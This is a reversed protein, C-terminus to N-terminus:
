GVKDLFRALAAKFEEPREAWPHHGCRELVVVETGPLLEQIKRAQSPPTAIDHSGTIVLTPIEVQPLGDAVWLEPAAPTRQLATVSPATAKRSAYQFRRMAALDYFYLPLLQRMWRALEADSSVGVPEGDTERFLRAAEERAPDSGLEALLEEVEQAPAGWHLGTNLLVLARVHAPYRISYAMAVFGGHSHGLLVFRDLDLHRRLSELDTVLHETAQADEADVRPSLGVNRPDYCVVQLGELLPALTLRLYDNSPGWAPGQLIAPPGSGTVTYHFRPAAIM